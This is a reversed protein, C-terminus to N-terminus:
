LPGDRNENFKARGALCRLLGKSHGHRIWGEIELNGAVKGAVPAGADPANARPEDHGVAVEHRVALRTEPGNRDRAARARLRLRGRPAVANRVDM